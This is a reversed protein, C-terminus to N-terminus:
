DAGEEVEVLLSKEKTMTVLGPPAGPIKRVNKKETFSVTVKAGPKGKSRAAALKAAQLLLEPTVEAGRRLKRLVVHAGPLDRAHFWLDEPQALQFTVYENAASNTGACLEFDKGIRQRFLHPTPVKEEKPKPPKSSPAQKRPFLDDKAKRIEEPANLAPLSRQAAKLQELREKIEKERQDVLALGRSGKQAKKFFRQANHLPTIGPDLPITVPDPGGRVVDELLAETQHLKVKHLSAMLLEGWWQYQDSRQAEARDKKLKELIRKEHKIAKAVEAELQAKGAVKLFHEKELIFLRELAESPTPFSELDGQPAPPAELLSLQPPPGSRVRFEALGKGLIRAKLNDWASLGESELFRNLDAENGRFNEKLWLGPAPRGAQEWRVQLQEGPIEWLNPKPSPGLPPPHYLTQPMVLREVDNKYRLASVIAGDPGVLILNPYKPIGEFVLRFPGDPTKFTLSLIREGPTNEVGTLQAFELNKRLSRCFNPPKPLAGAKQRNLFVLPKQPLIALTLRHVPRDPHYFSLDVLEDSSQAIHSLKSGVLKDQLEHALCQLIIPNM